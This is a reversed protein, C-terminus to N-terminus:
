LKYKNQLEVLLEERLEQSKLLEMDFKRSLDERIAAQIDTWARRYIM